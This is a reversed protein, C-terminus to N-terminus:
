RSGTPSRRGARRAAPSRRAPQPRSASSACSRASRTAARDRDGVALGGGGVPIVVTGPGEPLQEALELGLTGQGAIVREDDFAHVFTAGTEEVIRSRRPRGGRRLGRGRAAGDRRLRTRGRGEGDARGAAHLDDGPHRGRARGLRRGPRPQRRERHRRRRRAGGRSLQAITNYAGRIKFSGPASSTRPRSCCRAARRAPLADRVPLRADRARRGDLRERAAEIDALTPRM